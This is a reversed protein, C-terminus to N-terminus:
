GRPLAVLIVTGARLGDSSARIRISGSGGRSQVIAQCLGNFAKRQTGQDAEPVVNGAKDVVEAAIM